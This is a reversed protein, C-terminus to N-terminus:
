FIGGYVDGGFDLWSTSTMCGVWWFHQRGCSISKATSLSVSLCHFWLWQWGQCLCYFLVHAERIACHAQIWKRWDTGLLRTDMIWCYCDSSITIKNQCHQPEDATRRTQLREFTAVEVQLLLGIGTKNKFEVLVFFAHFRFSGNEEVRCDVNALNIIATTRCDEAM